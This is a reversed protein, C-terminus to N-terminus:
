DCAVQVPSVERGQVVVGRGPLHPRASDAAWAPDVGFVEASGPEIPSLLVGRRGSRLEALPGRFALAAVSTRASAVLVLGARGPAGAGWTAADVPGTLAEALRVALDPRRQELVDLDDVLLVCPRGAGRLTDLLASVRGPAHDSAQGPALADGVGRLPGDDAVVAVPVGASRLGRAIAVLTTSRGSGAPGAVLAGSGLALPVPGADDGGLGVAVVLAEGAERGAQPAWPDGRRGVSATGPPVDTGAPRGTGSAAPGGGGLDAYRVRLPVPRLRPAAPVRSGAGGDPGGPRDPSPVAVQCLVAGTAGTVAGAGARAAGSRVWVARGPPRASAALDAPVGAVADALPDGLRLVLRDAFLRVVAQPLAASATAAVAVRHRRADRLLALLADAGRGRAVASLSELVAELGDVVLLRPADAPDTPGRAGAESAPQSLLTVLRALLRSDDATVSTGCGRRLAPLPVPDGAAAAHVHWGRDLAGAALTRLVTTRGSGPAGLVLLPGAAPDWRAVAHRQEDPHDAIGFALGGRDGDAAPRVAEAPLHDPLPPAWPPTPRGLGARAAATRAAEVWAVSPPTTSGSRRGPHPADDVPTWPSPGVAPGAGAGGRIRRVLAHRGAAEGDAHAVQVPEPHAPGRRLLARGVAASPIAAADPVGVVDLSEGVDTVRLAIRVAVNARLDPGVAGGPRQTALVLHVGLSRGQAAVRLLGPVFAPLDDVLARFEDVVVVLRPPAERSARERLTVLDPAGQRALLRERRRLEARLGALARAALVADLDTVQAVVHPLDACPGFGAGGKYDVLLVALDTPPHALALALVWTQLLGSKGAGTTGAVLAHPGDRVLDLVVPTGDPGRGLPAALGSPVAARGGHSRWAALVADPDPPPIGPLDALAVAAPPRPPSSADAGAGARAALGALLRAQREAWAVTVGCVPLAAPPAGPHTLVATRGDASLELVAVCWPPLRARDPAVVVVPVGPARRPPPEGAPRGPVSASGATLAHGGSPRPGLDLVHVAPPADPAGPAWRLWRWERADGDVRAGWARPRGGTARGTLLPAPDGPHSDTPAGSCPEGAAHAADAHGRHRHSPTTRCRAAHCMTAHTLEACGLLRAVALALDRPGVVALGADPPLAPLAGPPGGDDAGPGAGSSAALVAARLDAAVPLSPGSGDARGPHGPVPTTEAPRAVAPRRRARWRHGLARLRIAARGALTTAPGVAALALLMRNGTAAALVAAGAAPAVWAGPTAGTVPARPAAAAGTAGVPPRPPRGGAALSRIEVATSGLLLRDGARLRRGGPRAHGARVTRGDRVLATGDRPGRDLLRPGHRGPVVEVHTASVTPDRVTLARTGHAPPAPRRGVLVPADLPVLAGADPGAVVALHWAARLALVDPPREGRGVHLVVGDVLPPEGTLHDDRLVVDDVALPVPSRGPSAALEPRGAADALARRLDALRRGDAMELDLDPSGAHGALTVRM